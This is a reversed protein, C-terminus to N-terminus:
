SIVNVEEELIIGFTELVSEKIKGALDMVDGGTANGHNVLVLAQSDHCGADGSRFGKWGCAEILWGAALKVRGGSLAYGVIRPYKEALREFVEASVEPNKFFSGANGLVDPDPLKSKRIAIVANAVARADPDAVNMKELQQRIAGYELSLAAKKGLRYTVSTIIFQGRLENKFISERYGFRCDSHSFIVKTGEHIHYAELSHFVDKIEVGYAGINQMPSAGTLGPILALNEIGFYDHDLCYMVFGHWNEGAGTRIFYYQDDEGVKEISRIDNKMILGDFDNRFVVNSGGGLVMYSLSKKSAVHSLLEKLEEETQFSAYARAKVDMHFTHLSKLSINEQITMM